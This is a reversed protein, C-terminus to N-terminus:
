QSLLENNESVSYKKSLEHRAIKHNNNRPLKNVKIFIKPTEFNDPYNLLYDVFFKLNFEEQNSVFAAGLITRGDSKTLAFCAAENIDPYSEMIRDIKSPNVKAGNLNIREDSRGTLVLEGQKTLYGTDGSYFWGEKFFIKTEKEKNYYGGIMGPTKIKILGEEENKLILGHEDVIQVQTDSLPLGIIGPNLNDEQIQNCSVQGLELSGYINVVKKSLYHKIQNLLALSIKAGQSTIDKLKTINIKKQKLYDILEVLQAPSGLLSDAKVIKILEPIEEILDFIYYTKGHLLFVAYVMNFVISIRFLIIKQNFSTEKLNSIIITARKECVKVTFPICKPEGTTGSSLTIRFLSDESPYDQPVIDRINEDTIFWTKDLIQHKAKFLSKDFERDCLIFEVDLENPLKSYNHSVTVTGEHILSLTILWELTRDEFIVVVIQGPKIGLKRLKIALHQVRELCEKFSISTKTSVIAPNSPTLNAHSILHKIPNIM